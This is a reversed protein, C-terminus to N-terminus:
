MRASCGNRSFCRGPLGVIMTSFTGPEREIGPAFRKWSRLVKPDVLTKVYFKTEIDLSQVQDRQKELTAIITRLDLPETKGDSAAAADPVSKQEAVANGDLASVPLWTFTVAGLLGVALVASAIVTAVLNFKAVALMKLAVQALQVSPATVGGASCGNHLDEDTVLVTRPDGDLFQVEHHYRIPHHDPGREHLWRAYLALDRRYAALTNRSLGEELWLADVFADISADSM